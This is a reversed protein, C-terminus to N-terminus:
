LSKLFLNSIGCDENYDASEKVISDISERTIPSFNGMLWISTQM